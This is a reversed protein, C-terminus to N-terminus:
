ARRLFRRIRERFGHSMRKFWSEVQPAIFNEWDDLVGKKDSSKMVKWAPVNGQAWDKIDERSYIPEPFYEHIYGSLRSFDTM